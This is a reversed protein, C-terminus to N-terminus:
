KRVYQLYPIKLYNEPIITAVCASEWVVYPLSLQDISHYRSTHYWWNKMMEHVKETNRYIFATSAFLKDDVYKTSFIETLQEDILENEYRPTIYPCKMNLRKKLYTAEEEITKRNPHKFVALDSNKCHELFWKVSDFHSLTCSGDVWIYYDYGPIMQWSFMKPIRAQLRPTMSCQRHFFNKDTFKYFDFSISQEVPETLTDFNGLSATIVAIKM